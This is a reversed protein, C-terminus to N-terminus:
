PYLQGLRQITSDVFKKMEDGAFKKAIFTPINIKFNNESYMKIHSHIKGTVPDPIETIINGGLIIDGRTKDKYEPYDKHAISKSVDHWTNEGVKKVYKLYIFDRSSATLVKKYALYYVTYSKERTNGFTETPKYIDINKDLEKQEGADGMFKIYQEARFPIVFESRTRNVKNGEQNEYSSMFVKLKHSNKKEEYVRDYKEFGTKHMNQVMDLWADAQAILGLHFSNTIKENLAEQAAMQKKAQEFPKKSHRPQLIKGPESQISRKDGHMTSNAEYFSEDEDGERAERITNFMGGGRYSNEKYEEAEDFATGPNGYYSTNSESDETIQQLINNTTVVDGGTGMTSRGTGADMSGDFSYYVTNNTMNSKNQSMRSNNQSMRSNNQSMRSNNQRSIRSDAIRKSM